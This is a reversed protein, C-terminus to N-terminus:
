AYLIEVGIGYTDAEIVLARTASVLEVVMLGQRPLCIVSNLPQLEKNNSTKVTIKYKRRRLM